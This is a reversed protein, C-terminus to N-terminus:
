KVSVLEVNRRAAIAREAATAATYRELMRSGRSWGMLLRVDGESLRAELLAMATGHRFVHPHLGVIGAQQGRRRVMLYLGAKSLAASTRDRFLPGSEVNARRHYRALLHLVSPELPVHRARAGKGLVVARRERRDIDEVRLSLLEAARLGTSALMAVIAHDRLGLVSRDRQCVKLLATLEDQTPVPVVKEPQRVAALRAAVNESIEGEERLWGFFRRVSRRYAECSAPQAGGTRESALWERLHEASVSDLGLAGLGMSDLHRFMRRVGHQYLRGTAPSCGAADLAVLFGALLREHETTARGTRVSPERLTDLPPGEPKHGNHSVRAQTTPTAVM